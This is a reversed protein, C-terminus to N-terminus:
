YNEKKQEIKKFATEYKDFDEEKVKWEYRLFFVQKIHKQQQKWM